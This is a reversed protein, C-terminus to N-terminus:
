LIERTFSISHRGKFSPLSHIISSADKMTIQASSKDEFTLVLTMNRWDVSADEIKKGEFMKTAAIMQDIIM